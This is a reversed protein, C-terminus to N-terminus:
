LCVVDWSALIDAATYLLFALYRNVTTSSSPSEKAGCFKGVSSQEVRVILLLFHMIDSDAGTLPGSIGIGRLILRGLTAFCVGKGASVSHFCVILGM